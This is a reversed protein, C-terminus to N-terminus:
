LLSGIVIEKKDDILIKKCIYSDKNAKAKDSKELMYVQMRVEVKLKSPYTM